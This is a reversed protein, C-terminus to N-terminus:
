LLMKGTCSFGDTSLAFGPDCECVHGPIENVCLQECGGNNTLCQDIDAFFSSFSTMSRQGQSYPISPYVKRVLARVGYTWVSAVANQLTKAVHVILTVQLKSNCM